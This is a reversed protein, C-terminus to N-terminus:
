GIDFLALWLLRRQSASFFFMPPQHEFSNRTPPGPLQDLAEARTLGFYAPRLEPQLNALEAENSFGRRLFGSPTAAYQDAANTEYYIARMNYGDHFTRYTDNAAAILSHGYPNEPGYQRTSFHLILMTLEGAANELGIERDTMPRFRGDLLSQYVRRTLFAEPHRDLRLELVQQRPVILTVGWGQIRRSPLALDEIVASIM